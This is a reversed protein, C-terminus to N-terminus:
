RARQERQSVYVAFFSAVVKFKNALHGSNTHWVAKVHHHAPGTTFYQAVSQAVIKETKIMLVFTLVHCQKTNYNLSPELSQELVQIVYNRAILWDTLAIFVIENTAANHDIKRSCTM